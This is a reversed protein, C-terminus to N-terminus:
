NLDRGDRCGDHCGREMEGRVEVQERLKALRDEGDKQKATLTHRRSNISMANSALRSVAEEKTRCTCLFPGKECM